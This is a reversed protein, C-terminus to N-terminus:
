ALFQQPKYKLIVLTVKTLKKEVDSTKSSWGHYNKRVTFGHLTMSLSLRSLCYGFIGSLYMTVFAKDYLQASTNLDVKEQSVKHRDDDM